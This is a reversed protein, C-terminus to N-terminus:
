LPLTTSSINPNWYLHSTHFTHSMDYFLIIHVSLLFFILVLAHSMAYYGPNALPSEFNYLSIRIAM